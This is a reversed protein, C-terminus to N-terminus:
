QNSSVNCSFGVPYLQLRPALQLVNMAETTHLLPKADMVFVYLPPGGGGHSDNM